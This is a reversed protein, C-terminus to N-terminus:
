WASFLPSIVPRIPVSHRTVFHTAVPHPSRHFLFMSQPCTTGADRKQEGSARQQMKAPGRACSTIAVQDIDTPAVLDHHGLAVRLEVGFLLDHAADRAPRTMVVRACDQPAARREIDFLMVLPSRLASFPSSAAASSSPCITKPWASRSPSHSHVPLFAFTDHHHPLRPRTRRYRAQAYRPQRLRVRRRPVTQFRDPVHVPQGGQIIDTQGQVRGFLALHGENVIRRPFAVDTAVVRHELVSRKVTHIVAPRVPVLFRRMGLHDAIGLAIVADDPAFGFEPQDFEFTRLRVVDHPILQAAVVERRESVIIRGTRRLLAVLREPIVTRGLGPQEREHRGVGDAPAPQPRFRDDRLTGKIRLVDSKPIGAFLTVDGKEAVEL